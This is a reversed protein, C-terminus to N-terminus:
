FGLFKAFYSYKNDRKCFNIHLIYILLKVHVEYLDTVFYILFDTMKGGNLIISLFIFFYRIKFEIEKYSNDQLSM